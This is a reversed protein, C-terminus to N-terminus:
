VSGARDNAEDRTLYQRGAPFELSEFKLARRMASEYAHERRREAAVLEGLWRSVSINARAAKARVWELVAEDMTIIVNVLPKM